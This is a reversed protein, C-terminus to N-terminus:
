ERTLYKFALVVAGILLAVVASETNGNENLMIASSIAAIAGLELGTDLAGRTKKEM